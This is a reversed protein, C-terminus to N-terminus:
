DQIDKLRKAEKRKAVTNTELSKQYRDLEQSALVRVNWLAVQNWAKEDTTDTM